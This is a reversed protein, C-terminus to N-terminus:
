FGGSRLARRQQATVIVEDLISGDLYIPIVIDGTDNSGQNYGSLQLQSFFAKLAELVVDHIKGEPAIIEGQTKNDGVIVPQPQNARVYGGEALRPLQVSSLTPISFGFSKGGIEPVWDPVSFSIRNLARILSNLGKIVGNVMYEIGGLIKNIISKLFSWIGNFVTKFTHEIIKLVTSIVNKMSEMGTTIGDKIAQMVVLVIGKIINITTSIISTITEWILKVFAVIATWIGNFIKEIGQWALEWDGTFVGMIFDILGSFIDIIGRVIEGVKELFNLLIMGLEEIIPAITPVITEILWAILPQLVLEWLEMIAFALRGIFEIFADITPQISTTWVEVFKTALSDLVPAIYTNFADLMRTVINSIGDAFSQFMPSIKEEYVAFIKDFTQQVSDGITSVIKSVPKLINEIANKIKDQNDTIPKAIMDLVDNGFKLALEIVGLFATSFIDIIDSGIQKATNGKFVSFINGLADFLKVGTDRAEILENTIGKLREQLKGVTLDLKSAKVDTNEIEPGFDVNEFQAGGAGGGSGSTDSSTLKNIEDFGMLAKQAKKASEAAGGAADEIGGTASSAQEAADAVEKMAAGASGGSKKGMIMETFSRFANAVQVLKAMIVNLWKVIPALVNIFGQGMAAKFSEFQGTLIRTQNAWQDQTKTFDGAAHSLKDQVFALRLAVKEQETMKSTTKGFGKALAFQDLASQTMVVGLEKLSETEGTFVSKLKTYAEDHNLNYFSAVDGALGTLATSMGYAQKESFGFSKSMAGFTGVMKKSQSETLGYASLANKSFSEVKDSMSTFVTDVVNQLESLESGKNISDKVFTGISQVAKTAMNAMINGVAVSMVGFAKTAVKDIGKVQKNFHKNNLNLDLSIKGVSSM